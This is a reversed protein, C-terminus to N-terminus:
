SLRASTPRHKFELICSHLPLTPIAASTLMSSHFDPKTRCHCAWLPAVWRGNARAQPWLTLAPPRRHCPSCSPPLPPELWALHTHTLHCCSGRIPPPRPSSPRLLPQVQGHVQGLEKGGCWARGASRSVGSHCMPTAADLHWLPTTCASCAGPSLPCCGPLPRGRQEQVRCAHQAARLTEPGGRGGGQLPNPVHLARLM